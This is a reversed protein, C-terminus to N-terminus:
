PRAGLTIRMTIVVNKGMVTESIEPKRETSGSTMSRMRVM